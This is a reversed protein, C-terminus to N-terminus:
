FRKLDPIPEIPATRTVAHGSVVADYIGKQILMINGHVRGGPVFREADPVQKRVEDRVIERLKAFNVDLKTAVEDPTYFEAM